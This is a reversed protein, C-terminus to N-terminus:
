RPGPAPPPGELTLLYGNPTRLQVTWFGAPHAQPGKLVSLGRRLALDHVAHVDVVEIQWALDWPPVNYESSQPKRVGFLVPGCRLSTFGSYTIEATFGLASYFGVEAELDVVPLVPLLRKFM